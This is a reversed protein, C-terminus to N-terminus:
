DGTHCDCDPDGDDCCLDNRERSQRAEDYGLNLVEVVIEAKDM